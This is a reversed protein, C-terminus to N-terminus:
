IIYYLDRFMCVHTKPWLLLLVPSKRSLFHHPQLVCEDMIVMRPEIFRELLSINIKFYYLVPRCGCEITNQALVAVFSTLKGGFHHSTQSFIALNSYFDIYTKWRLVCEDMIEMGPEIFRKLLSVNVKFYYLVPRCGCVHTNHALVAVFSTM